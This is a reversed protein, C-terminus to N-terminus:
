AAYTPDPVAPDASVPHHPDDSRVPGISFQTMMDHDEHPLNHCHVMYRGERMSPSSFPILLRVIEAEGVYVVDKPGREHPLPPQGNRSLIKFDVLHIHVPHFWGGSSNEIEWIQTEGLAPNALLKTYGSAVVDAWVQGGFTWTTLERKVRIRVVQEAGTEQQSMLETPALELGDYPRNWTPDTTDVPADVLDFAMVKRTFDYDVNNPNSLNLLEVRKTTLPVKSFDLVIEYREAPGQRYSTVATGRPTLGGDTGVVVMPMGNSMTFRYSRSISAVLVRFRYTRRQVTMKPWARGNVLVVDGWLGTHSDDLYALSGDAAFIADTVTLPVDFAGQPMLAREQADHLHYQAALGSYANQATFHQGHDHYWLTRAPQTNPYRYTKKFGVPTVDAAYGDYEPLSESGHLHTSIRYDGGMPNAAPLHNRMTVFAEEGREMSLIPGPVMGQTHALTDSYGGVATDVGPILRAAGARATIDFYRPGGAYPEGGPGTPILVPPRLLPRSYRPPFLTSPLLSVSKAQLATAGLPGAVGAAGLAM